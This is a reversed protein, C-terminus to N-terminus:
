KNAWMCSLTIRWRIFAPWAILISVTFIFIFHAKSCCCIRRSPNSPFSLIFLPPLPLLSLLDRWFHYLFSVPFDFFWNQLPQPWNEWAWRLRFHKAMVQGHSTGGAAEEPLLPTVTVELKKVWRVLLLGSINGGAGNHERFNQDWCRWGLAGKGMEPWSVTPLSSLQRSSGSTKRSTHWKCACLPAWCEWLSHLPEM